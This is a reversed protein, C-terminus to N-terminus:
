PQHNMHIDKFVYKDRFFKQRVVESSSTTGTSQGAKMLSPRVIILSTEMHQVSLNRAFIFVSRAETLCDFKEQSGM